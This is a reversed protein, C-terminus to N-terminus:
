RQENINNITNVINDLTSKFFHSYTNLTEDIKAHGLYRAVLTINAGNNILLSACSHRFDHIRIQKIGAKNANDNKRRRLVDPHIPSIDGFVFWKDEFGYYKKSDEKLLKLDQVLIDPMPITRYSTRTKPTTLVWYGSEGSVNVVNKKVSLEKKNFDIDIWRLGRLEGRRLGCYYLTEFLAKFKLDDEVSIFQQFEEFTYFEMEKPVENANKFNTMKNYMSFFNFDYKKTGYNLVSKLYKFSDNKTRTALPTGAPSIKKNMRKKWSDIHNINLEDLRIDKISDFHKIKKEYNNLTTYKVEDNDRQYNMHDLMLEGLTEPRKIGGSEELLREEELKKIYTTQAQEAERCTRYKKSKFKKGNFRGEFIWKRGDKTWEDKGVQRVSM